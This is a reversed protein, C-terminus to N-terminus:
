QKIGKRAFISTDALKLIDQNILNSTYRIPCIDIGGRRTYLACVMLEDNSNLIDSLRKFIMECCEEHFHYESRFSTLYEIISAEKIHINSKYYIYVDGFDPQHTVRCNSRLADFSLYYAQVRDANETQLLQPSETFQSIVIDQEQVLTMIDIYQSFIETRLANNNLFDINVDTQLANSLDKEILKKCIDLCESVTTGFSSMNFSNLYLKLSKSEVIYKSKAPVIMCGMCVCPLGNLNLYTLEYLHWVDFGEFSKLNKIASRGLQREIRQLLSPSYEEQYSTSKGLVLNTTDM